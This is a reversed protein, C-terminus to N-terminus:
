IARAFRCVSESHTIDINKILIDTYWCLYIPKQKNPGSLPAEQWAEIKNFYVFFFNIYKM